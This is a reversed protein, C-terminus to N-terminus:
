RAELARLQARMDALQDQWATISRGVTIGERECLALYQESSRIKYRLAWIRFYTFAMALGRQRSPATGAGLETCAEAPWPQLDDLDAPSTNCMGTCDEFDCLQCVRAPLHRARLHTVASM